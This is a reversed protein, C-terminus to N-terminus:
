DAIRLAVAPKIRTAQQAPAATAVLSALFTGVTLLGLQLWPVSFALAAGFNDSRALRWATILALVTGIVIGEFAVFGSETVFARRVAVSGFGLARLVGVQRRRERVARVM